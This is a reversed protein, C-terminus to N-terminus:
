CLIGTDYLNSIETRYKQSTWRRAARALPGHRDYQSINMKNNSRVLLIEGPQKYLKKNLPSLLCGETSYITKHIAKAHPRHSVSGAIEGKELLIENSDDCLHRAPSNHPTHLIGM